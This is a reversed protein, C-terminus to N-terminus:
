AAEREAGAEYQSPTPFKGRLWDRFKSDRACGDSSSLLDDAPPAGNWETVKVDDRQGCAEPFLNGYVTRLSYSQGHLERLVTCLREANYVFPVHLGYFLPAVIGFSALIDRTREVMARYGGTPSGSALYDEISGRHARHGSWPRLVFFDDNMAIFDGSVDCQSLAQWINKGSSRFRDAHPAAGAWVVKCSTIRPKDGGIIVRGHPVNVLSRLSYRLEFEDDPRKYPYVVDM